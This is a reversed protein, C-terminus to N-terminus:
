TRKETCTVGAAWVWPRAARDQLQWATIAEARKLTARIDDLGELLAERRMPDVAFEIASADPLRVCCAPLDITLPSGDQALASLRQIAVQPLQIPLVGNQLCNSFFIDGFSEAIVCRIGRALLAWVAGERSSGCGFNRGALLIPATRFMAQNLVFDPAETGDARFRWSEFAFPGLEDRALSTLREIRVIVDTDVNDRALVAAPGTVTVFPTM